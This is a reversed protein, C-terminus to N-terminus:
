PTIGVSLGAELYPLIRNDDVGFLLVGFRGTLGISIRDHPHWRASAALAPSLGFHDQVTGELVSDDPFRRQVYQGAIRPGAYLTFNQIRAGFMLGVAGELQWYDQQLRLGDLRLPAASRQGWLAEATIQ